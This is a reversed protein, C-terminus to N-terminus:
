QFILSTLDYDRMFRRLLDPKRGDGFDTGITHQVPRNRRSPALEFPSARPGIEDRFNSESPLGIGEM